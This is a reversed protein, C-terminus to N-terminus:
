SKGPDTVRGLFLCAGSPRHQIAFIFPHDVKFVLPEVAKPALAMKAMAVATAAAAETGKEDVSIFTKHYVESIALYDNSKRPAIRDFNASGQPQDFAARMGLTRLIEGLSLTPPLLKFKPLHVIIDRPEAKACDALVSATLRSEVARLGDVATPLIILFQIDGGSYPLTVASFGDGEFFGLFNKGVMMPVDAIANGNRHFPEPETAGASFEKAWPAKLYIANTLVLRTNTTLGGLPILDRIRQHTKGAVWDNIIKTAADPNKTFDLPDFPAGYKEKLLDVFPARFDYGTQGFLRNATELTIPESPGGYKRSREAEATSKAVAEDLATRLAFFSQDTENGEYHLVKAMQTRTEGEAGAYTMALAVQISYPSLCVNNVGNENDTGKERDTRPKGGIQRYLDLGLENVASAAPITNASISAIPLM